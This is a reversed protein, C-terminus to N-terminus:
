SEPFKRAAVHGGVGTGTKDPFEFGRRDPPRREVGQWLVFPFIDNPVDFVLKACNQVHVVELAAHESPEGAIECQGRRVERVGPHAHRDSLRSWSDRQEYPHSTMTELEFVQM